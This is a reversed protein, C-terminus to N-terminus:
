KGTETSYQKPISQSVYLSPCFRGGTYSWKRQEARKLYHGLLDIRQFSLPQKNDTSLARGACCNALYRSDDTEKRALQWVVGKTSIQKFPRFLFCIRHSSLINRTKLWRIRRRRIIIIIISLTRLSPGGDLHETIDHRNAQSGCSHVVNKKRYYLSTANQALVRGHFRAYNLVLKWVSAQNKEVKLRNEDNLVTSM